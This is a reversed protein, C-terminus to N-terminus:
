GAHFSCSSCHWGTSHIRIIKYEPDPNKKGGRIRNKPRGSGSKKKGGPIPNKDVPDPYKTYGSGTNKKQNENVRIQLVPVLAVNFDFSSINTFLSFHLQLMNAVLSPMIYLSINAFYNLQIRKFSASIVLKLRPNKFKSIQFTGYM